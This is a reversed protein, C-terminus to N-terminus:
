SRTEALPFRLGYVYAGDPVHDAYRRNCHVRAVGDEILMINATDYPAHIVRRINELVAAFVEEVSMDSNLVAAVDRLAELFKRHEREACEAQRIETIDHVILLEGTAHGGPGRLPMCRMEYIRQRAPAGRSGAAPGMALEDRQQEGPQFEGGCGGYDPLYRALPQNLAQGAPAGLAREAAPNIDVIRRMHDLIIVGDDMSEIVAMRAVPTVDLLRYRLYAWLLIFGMVAFSFPTLDLGLLPPWKMLSLVNSLWPVLAGVLITSAQTRFARPSTLYLHVMVLSGVLILTAAYLWFLWFAIGFDADLAVIPGHHTLGRVTRALGHVDNTWVLGILLLSPIALLLARRPPLLHGLGCYNLAFALWALPLATIGFYNVNAFFVILDQTTSGLELAYGFAWLTAAAMVVILARAGPAARRLWVYVTMWATFSATALMLLVYANLQWEM